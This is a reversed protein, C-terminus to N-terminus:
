WARIREHLWGTSILLTFNWIWPFWPPRQHPELVRGGNRTLRAVWEAVGKVIISCM